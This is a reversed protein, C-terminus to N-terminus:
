DSYAAHHWIGLASYYGKLHLATGPPLNNEVCLNSDNQGFASVEMLTVRYCYRPGYRFGNQRSAWVTREVTFIREGRTGAIRTYLASATRSAALFGFLAMVVITLALQKWQPGGLFQMVRAAQAPTLRHLNRRQHHLFLLFLLGCGVGYAAGVWLAPPLAIFHLFIGAIAGALNVLIAALAILGSLKPHM